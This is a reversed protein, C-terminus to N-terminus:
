IASLHYFAMLLAVILIHRSYHCATAASVVCDQQFRLNTNCKQGSCCCRVSIKGNSQDSRDVTGCKDQDSKSWEDNWCGWVGDVRNGFGLQTISLDPDDDVFLGEGYEINDRTKKAGTNVTSQFTCLTIGKDCTVPSLTSFGTGSLCELSNVLVVWLLTVLM